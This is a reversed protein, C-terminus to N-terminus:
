GGRRARAKEFVARAAEREKGQWAALAKAHAETGVAHNFDDGVLNSGAGVVWAGAKWWDPANGPSVGGSPMIKIQQGLPTVGLMSKLISPSIIGAHFLKILKAGRRHLAYRRRPRPCAATEALTHACFRRRAHTQARPAATAHAGSM